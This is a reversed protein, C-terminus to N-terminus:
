TLKQRLTLSRQAEKLAGLNETLSSASPRRRQNTLKQVKSLTVPSNEM